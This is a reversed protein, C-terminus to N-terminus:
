CKSIFIKTAATAILAPDTENNDIEFEINTAAM